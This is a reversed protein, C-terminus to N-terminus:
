GNAARLEEDALDRLRQALETLQRRRQEVLDHERGIAADVQRLFESRDETSAVFAAVRQLDLGHKQWLWHGRDVLARYDPDFQPEVAVLTAAIALRLTRHERHLAFADRVKDYLRQRRRNDPLPSTFSQTRMVLRAFAIADTDPMEIRVGSHWAEFLTVGAFVNGFRDGYLHDFYDGLRRQEPDRDLAALVQAVAQDAGPPLGNAYNAFREQESLERERRVAKGLQWDYFVAAHLQPLCEFRHMRATAARHSDTGAAVLQRPTAEPAYDRPEFWRAPGAPEYAAAGRQCGVIRQLVEDPDRSLRREMNRVVATRHGADLRAFRAILEDATPPASAAQALLGGASVFCALLTRGIM